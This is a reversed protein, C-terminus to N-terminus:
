PLPLANDIAALDDWKGRQKRGISPTLPQATRPVEAPDLPGLRADFADRV